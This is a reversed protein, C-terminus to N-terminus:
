KEPLPRPNPRHDRELTAHGGDDARRVEDLVVGREATVDEIADLLRPGASVVRVRTIESAPDAVLDCLAQAQARCLDLEHGAPPVTSGARVAVGPARHSWRTAPRRWLRRLREIQNGM